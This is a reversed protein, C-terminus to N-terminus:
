TRSTAKSKFMRSFTLIVAFVNTRGLKTFDKRFERFRWLQPVELMYYNEPSAKIQRKLGLRPCKAKAVSFKRNQPFHKHKWIVPIKERYIRTKLNIYVKDSTSHFDSGSVSTEDACNLLQSDLQTALDNAEMQDMQNKTKRQM